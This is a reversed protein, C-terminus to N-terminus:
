ETRKVARQARSDARKESKVFHVAAMKTHGAVRTTYCVKRCGSVLACNTRIVIQDTQALHLLLRGLAGSRRLAVVALIRIRNAIFM